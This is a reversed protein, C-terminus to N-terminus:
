PGNGDITVQGSILDVSQAFTSADGNTLPANDTITLDGQIATLDHLPLLSELSRNTEIFLNGSVTDLSSLGDLRVMQLNAAVELAGVQELANLGDLNLLTENDRVTLKGGVATLERLGTFLDLNPNQQIVLRGGISTLANARTIESLGANDRLVVDNGVSTLHEWEPLSSLGTNLLRLDGGVSTLAQLGDVTSLAPSDEFLLDADVTELNVFGVVSELLPNDNVTLSPADVLLQFGSVDQLSPNDEIVLDGGLVTLQNLADLLDLSTNSRIILASDVSSLLAFGGLTEVADLQTLLVEGGVTELTDLSALSPLLPLDVLWLDGGIHALRYLDLDTLARNDELHLAGDVSALHPLDLTILAPNATITLESAQSLWPLSVTLLDPNDTVTVAGGISELSPLELTQLETAVVRLDGGIHQLRPAAVEPRGWVTLDGGVECLCDISFSGLELDGEVANTFSGCFAEVSAVSELSLDGPHQTLSACPDTPASSGPTDCALWEALLARDEPEVGDAPPMTPAPGTTVAAIAAAHAVVDEYRDFNVGDPAGQRSSGSQNETHCGLCRTTIFPQGFTEWTVLSDPPCTEVVTEPPALGSSPPALPGGGLWSVQACSALLPLTIALERPGWGVLRGIM